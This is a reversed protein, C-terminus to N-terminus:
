ILGGNWPSGILAGGQGRELSLASSKEFRAKAAEGRTGFGEAGGEGGLAVVAVGVVATGRGVIDHGVEHHVRGKWVLRLFSMRGAVALLRRLSSVM